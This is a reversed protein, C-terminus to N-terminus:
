RQRRRRILALAGLGIGLLFWTSPEPVATATFYLNREDLTFTGQQDAGLGTATFSGISVDGTATTFDLIRYAADDTLTLNSFDITIGEGITITDTVTLVDTYGLIAGDNLTLNTVIGASDLLAGANITLTITGPEYYASTPDYNFMNGHLATGPGTLTIEVVANKYSIVDGTIVSSNSGTLTITGSYTAALSAFSGALTNHNLNVQINAEEDVFIGVGITDEAASTASINSNTLTLTNIFDMSASYVGFGSSNNATVSINIGDLTAAGWNGIGYLEGETFGPNTVTISGSTLSLSAGYTVLAGYYQQYNESNYSVALTIGTGEYRAVGGWDGVGLAYDKYDSNDYSAGIEIVTGSSVYKSEAFTNLTAAGLLTLILTLKTLISTQM